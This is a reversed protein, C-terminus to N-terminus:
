FPEQVTPSSFAANKQFSMVLDYKLHWFWKRYSEKHHQLLASKENVHKIPLDQLVKQIDAEDKLDLNWDALPGMAPVRSSLTKATM